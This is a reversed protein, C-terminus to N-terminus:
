YYRESVINTFKGKIRKSVGYINNYELKFQDTTLGSPVTFTKLRVKDGELTLSFSSTGAILTVDTNEDFNADPYQFYMVATTGEYIGFWAIECDRGSVFPYYGHIFKWNNRNLSATLKAFTQICDVFVSYRSYNQAVLPGSDYLPMINSGRNPPPNDANYRQADDWLEVGDAGSFLASLVCAKIQEEGLQRIEEANGYTTFPETRLRDVDIAEMKKSPNYYSINFDGYELYRLKAYTWMMGTYYRHMGMVYLQTEPQWEGVPRPDINSDGTVIIGQPQGYFNTNEGFITETFNSTNWVRKGGSLIFSSGSKQYKNHSSIHPVKQYGTNRLDTYIGYNKFGAKNYNNDGNNLLESQVVSDTISDYTLRPASTAPDRVPFFSTPKSYLGVKATSNPNEARTALYFGENLKSLLYYLEVSGSYASLAEEDWTQRQHIASINWLGTNKDRTASRRYYMSKGVEVMGADTLGGYNYGGSDYLAQVNGYIGGNKGQSLMLNAAEWLMGYVGEFFSINYISFESPPFADLDPKHTLAKKFITMKGDTANPENTWVPFCHGANVSIGSPINIEDRSEWTIINNSTEFGKSIYEDGTVVTGGGSSSSWWTNLFYADVHNDCAAQKIYVVETNRSTSIDTEVTYYGGVPSITVFNLNIPNGFEDRDFGGTFESCFKLVYSPDAKSLRIFMHGGSTTFDGAEFSPQNVLSTIACNVTETLPDPSDWVEFDDLSRSLELYSDSSAQVEDFKIVPVLTDNRDIIWAVGFEGDYYLSDGKAYVVNNVKDRIWDYAM